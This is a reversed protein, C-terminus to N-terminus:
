FNGKILNLFFVQEGEEAMTVHSIMGCCIAALDYMDYWKCLSSIWATIYWSQDRQSKM